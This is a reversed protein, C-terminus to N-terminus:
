EIDFAMTPLIAYEKTKRNNSLCVTVTQRELDIATIWPVPLLVEEPFGTGWHIFVDKDEILAQKVSQLDKTMM